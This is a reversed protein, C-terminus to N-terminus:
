KLSALRKAPTVIETVRVGFSEDVVVVEGRAILHDNVLIDVPEGALRDLEVVSGPGLELVERISMTARGLEVTVRLAVELILNLNGAAPAPGTQEFPLFQAPSVTPADGRHAGAPPRRSIAPGSAAPPEPEPSSDGKATPRAEGDSLTALLAEMDADDADVDLGEIGVGGLRKPALETAEEDQSERNDNTTM